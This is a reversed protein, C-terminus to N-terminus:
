NMDAPKPLIYHTNKQRVATTKCQSPAAKTSGNLQQTFLCQQQIKTVITVTIKSNYPATIVEALTTYHGVNGSIATM